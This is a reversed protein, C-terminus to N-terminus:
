ITLRAPPKNQQGREYVEVEVVVKKEDNKGVLIIVKEPRHRFSLHHREGHTTVILQYEKGDAVPFKIPCAKDPSGLLWCYNIQEDSQLGIMTTRVSVNSEIILEKDGPTYNAWAQAVTEEYSTYFKGSDKDHQKKLEEMERRQEFSTFLSFGTSALCVLWTVSLMLANSFNRAM